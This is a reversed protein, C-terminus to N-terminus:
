YRANRPSAILPKYEKDGRQYQIYQEAWVGCMIYDGEDTNSVLINNAFYEHEDEVTLDYVKEEQWGPANKVVSDQMQLNIPELTKKVLKAYETKMGNARHATLECITDQNANQLAFNLKTLQQQKLNMNVNSVLSKVGLINKLKNLYNKIGNEAKKQNIGNVQKLDHLMAYFKKQERKKNIAGILCTNQYINLRSSVSWIAYNMISRIKMSTIFTMAKLLQASKAYGNSYMFDQKQKLAKLKLGDQIIYASAETKVARIGQLNLVQTPLSKRKWIKKREFICFTTPTTLEKIEKFGYEETWFYHNDTCRIEKSDIIYKNVKKYGMDPTAIVKKYGKRTLVYDGIKINKIEKEGFITQILTEGAFCCHGWPQYSRKTVPDIVPKKDKTRDAAEKTNNYDAITKVCDVDIMFSCGAFDKELLTNIFDGRGSVSPNSKAVMRRVHFKSLKNIIRRYLDDGKQQKVDDKQSTADGYLSVGSTHSNYRRTFEACIYDDTNNPWVACIEDIKYLHLGDMQYIGMPFYPIANEDISIFIVRDPAYPKKGTGFIHPYLETLKGVHKSRDFCKYFEGGTKSFPSGYILMDQLSTHLNAKQNEIYNSPLNEINLYTSSITVFKNSIAKKFYTTESFILENIEKEYDNLFFWENIWPVNAPSTFIYLPNFPRSEEGETTLNGKKDVYMGQQRLRGTIVQKVAEEKTDKTEDLIAWGVEIGDLAKYNDLSGIYVIAGTNFSIINNYSDFNHHTTLFHKPPQKGVTYNGMGTKDSYENWGFSDKWVERIRFLTSLNLQGYTNACIIGRIKAFNNVYNASVIGACHSKGSGQGALFLNVSQRSTLIDYQPKTPKIRIQVM